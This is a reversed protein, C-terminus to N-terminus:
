VRGHKRGVRCTTCVRETVEANGALPAGRLPALRLCCHRTAGLARSGGEVESGLWGWM